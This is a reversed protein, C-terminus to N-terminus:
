GWRQSGPGGGRHEAPLGPALGPCHTAPLDPCPLHQVLMGVKHGSGM